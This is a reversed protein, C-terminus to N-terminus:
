GKQKLKFIERDHEGIKKDLFTLDEKTSFENLRSVIETHYESLKGTQRYILDQKTEIKALHENTKMLENKVNTMDDKLTSVDEKVNTMDDKLTSVDGKVNAMDDKLTSVDSRVDRLENKVYSMDSKLSSYDDKTAMTSRIDKLEFMIQQLIAEQNMMKVEKDFFAADTSDQQQNFYVM